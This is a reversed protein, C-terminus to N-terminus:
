PIPESDPLSGPLAPGILRNLASLLVDRRIPKNLFEAAGLLQALQSQPLISCVLLPVTQTAPLARLRGMLEWGDMEPLMVDLLIAAPLVREAAELAAAPDSVGIFRYRTGALFRNVLQLTDLNDDVVLVPLQETTPLSITIRFGPQLPDASVSLDGKSLRVLQRAVDLDSDLPRELRTKPLNSSHLKILVYLRNPAVEAELMIDGTGATRIALALVHLLAQRISTAQVSLRPLDAAPQWVLRIQVARILPAAQAIVSDVLGACDVEEASITRELWALEESPGSPGSEEGVAPVEAPQANMESELLHARAELAHASWLHDALVEVAGQELRRLQRPSLFLDRAVEEQSFQDIYRGHLVQYTRWAMSGVPCDEGPELTEVAVAILRQLAGPADRRHELGFLAILPSHRVQAPTYLNPLIKRLERVLAELAPKGNM